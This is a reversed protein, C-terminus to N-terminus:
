LLMSSWRPVQYANGSAGGFLVNGGYFLGIGGSTSDTGFAGVPIANRPDLQTASGARIWWIYTGDFFCTGSSDGVAGYSATKTPTGGFPRYKVLKNRFTVWLQQGDYGLGQVRYGDDIITTTVVGTSVKYSALTANEGFVADVGSTRAKTIATKFNLQTGSPITDIQVWEANATETYSTDLRVWQGARFGSTSSISVSTAGIAANATLFIGAPNGQFLMWVNDTDQALVQATGDYYNAATTQVNVEVTTVTTRAAVDVRTLRGHYNGLSANNKSSIYLKTGTLHLFRSNYCPNTSLAALDVKVGFDTGLTLATPAVNVITNNVAADLDFWLVVATSTSSIGTMYLTGATSTAYVKADLMAYGAGLYYTRVTTLSMPDIMWIYGNSTAAFLYGKYFTFGSVSGTGITSNNLKRASTTLQTFAPINRLGIQKGVGAVAPFPLSDKALGFNNSNAILTIGTVVSSLSFVPSVPAVEFSANYANNDFKWNFARVVFNTPTPIINTSAESVSLTDGCEVWPLAHMMPLTLIDKIDKGNTIHWDALNRAHLATPIFSNDISKDFQGFAEISTQDKHKALIEAARVAMRCTLAINTLKAEESANNKAKIKVFDTYYVPYGTDWSIGSSGLEVDPAATTASTPWLNAAAPYGTDKLIKQDSLTLFEDPDSAGPYVAAAAMTAWTYRDTPFNVTTEAVSGDANTPIKFPQSKVTVKNVLPALKNGDFNQTYAADELNDITVTEVATSSDGVFMRSRLRLAGQADFFVRGDVVEALKAIVDLGQGELWTAPLYLAGSASRILDVRMTITGSSGGNRYIATTLGTNYAAHTISTTTGDDNTQSTNAYEAAYTEVYNWRVGALWAAREFVWNFTRGTAPASPNWVLEAAIEKAKLLKATDFCQLSCQRSRAKPTWPGTVGVFLPISDSGVVISIKIPKNPTLLGYYPGSTNKPSFRGDDNLLTLTATNANTGGSISDVEESRGSAGPLVYDSIDTYTSGSFLVEVKITSTDLGSRIVTQLATTTTIAM